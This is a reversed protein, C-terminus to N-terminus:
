KTRQKRYGTVCGNKIKDYEHIRNSESYENTNEHQYIETSSKRKDCLKQKSKMHRNM